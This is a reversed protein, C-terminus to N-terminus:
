VNNAIQIGIRNSIATEVAQYVETKESKISVVLSYKILNDVNELKREKWWGPGPFVVIKGCEALEQATCTFWDSQVTGNERRQQHIQWRSSNNTPSSEGENKNHRRLFEKETESSTKVDFHLTASPYRYKNNKGSTGPAPKVYYSLTVRMTVNESHMNELLEVPWPLDYYHMENYTVSSSGQIFPIIENEFVFTACKESSFTAVEEDPVGYGCFSMIDKTQGIDKMKRTWEASHVMLARVSLMSLSPNTTKIKAALRAALGTAASTANFTELPENLDQCTTIVSLDPNTIIGLPSQPILNGGEMVIEPKIRGNKWSYTSRSMPSIEGPAALPTYDQINDIITKETYAGVTLVNWAQSPSFITNAKCSEMYNTADVDPTQINGASVVVMRDCAGGHYISEDLAASSSTPRGELSVGDTVAMCDITAGMDQAQNIADEIVAGYFSPDTEHNKEYIKVSALSHEVNLVTERRYAIETLDGLLALGALDTGHFSHDISDQVSIATSMRDNPLAPALLDHANNVGSDLVGVRVSDDTFNFNIENRILKSWERSTEHTQTLISPQCYLRVGEIYGLHNPLSELIEKTAKILFVDVDIFQLRHKIDCEINLDSFVQSVSDISYSERKSIWLEFQFITEEVLDDFEIPSKYLSHIDAPTIQNIPAILKENRPGTKGDLTAYDNTKKTLWDKNKKKVFVTVDVNGSEKEESVKLVQAGTKTDLADSMLKKEMEIDMYVGNAIPRGSAALEDQLAIAQSVINQYQEKLLEAHEKRSRKPQEIPDIPKSRPTFKKVEVTRNDLIFHKKHM